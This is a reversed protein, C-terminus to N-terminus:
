KGITVIDGTSPNINKQLQSLRTIKDHYPNAIRSKNAFLYFTFLSDINLMDSISIANQKFTM